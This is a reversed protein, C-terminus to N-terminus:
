GASGACPQEFASLRAQDAEMQAKLDKLQARLWSSDEVTARTRAERENEEFARILGNAVAASLAPDKSRFRIQLVLTRPLAEVLLQRKFRLLLWERADVGPADPRFGPFKKAFRGRFGPAEYLKLETIVRWALGESRFVNALTELELPAALLSVAAVPETTQEELTSAPSERLAVKATADYQNPAILCYLLCLLLLGGLVYLGLRRREM